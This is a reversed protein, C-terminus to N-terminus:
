CAHLQNEYTKKHTCAWRSQVNSCLPPLLVTNYAYGWFSRARIGRSGHKNVKGQLARLSEAEAHFTGASASNVVSLPTSLLDRVKKKATRLIHYM